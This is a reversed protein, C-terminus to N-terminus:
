ACSFSFTRWDDINAVNLPCFALKEKQKYKVFTHLDYFM